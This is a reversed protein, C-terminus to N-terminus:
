VFKTLKLVMSVQANRPLEWLLGRDDLLRIELTNISDESLAVYDSTSNQYYVISGFSSDIPIRELINSKGNSSYNHSSIDAQLDVYQTGSLNLPYDAVYSSVQGNLTGFGLERYIDNSGEVFGFTDPLNVSATLKKSQVDYSVSYTLTGVANLQTQLESAIEDGDYNNPPITITLTAGSNESLYLKNNNSNIPYVANPLHVSELSIGYNEMNAGTNFNLTYIVDSPTNNIITGHDSDLFLLINQGENHASM